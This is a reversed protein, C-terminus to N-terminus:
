TRSGQRAAVVRARGFLDDHVTVDLWGATTALDAVLAARRCDVELVLWGGARVVSRAATILRRTVDLGDAGSVLAVAPEYRRVSPDLADYEAATLYPPNAVVLDVAGGAVPQLLDGLRWKVERGTSRGNEAALALAPASNDIGLVTEFHGEDRLALAIAGTGTGVDVAIGTSCRQLAVEVVTETEPRPILARADCAIHLRRFGTWGTVYALPEGSARRRVLELFRAAVADTVRGNRDLAGSPGRLEGWLRAAERRPETFGNARLSGEAAELLRGMSATADTM